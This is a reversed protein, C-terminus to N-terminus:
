DSMAQVCITTALTHRSGPLLTVANSGTIAPELCFMTQYADDSMDTFAQAGAQWPNWVVMDSHGVSSILLQRQWERDAMIIQPSPSPCIRDVAGDLVIHANPQQSDLGSVTVADPQSQQLYSHLAGGYCFDKNGTNETNLNISLSDSIIFETTLTFDHPWLRKSEASSCLQMRVHCSGADSHSDLLQWHSNRAFGHAPFDQHQAQPVISSNLKANGFWPWCIPVGGRIAKVGNFM